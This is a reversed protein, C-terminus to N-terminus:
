MKKLMEVPGLDGLNGKVKPKEFQFKTHIKLKGTFKEQGV